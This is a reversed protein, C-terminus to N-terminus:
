HSPGFFGVMSGSWTDDYVSGDYVPTKPIKLGRELALRPTSLAALPYTGHM